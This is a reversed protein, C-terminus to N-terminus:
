ALHHLDWFSRINVLRWHRQATRHPATSKSGLQERAGAGSVLGARLPRSNCASLRWWVRLRSTRVLFGLGPSKPMDGKLSSEYRNRPHGRTQKAVRQQPLCAKAPEAPEAQEAPEAPEGEAVCSPPATAKCICDRSSPATVLSVGCSLRSDIERPYHFGHIELDLLEGNGSLTLTGSVDCNAGDCSM